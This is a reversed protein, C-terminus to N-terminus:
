YFLSRSDVHKTLSDVLDSQNKLFLLKGPLPVGEVSM